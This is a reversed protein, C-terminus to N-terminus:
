SQASRFSAGRFDAQRIKENSWYIKDLNERRFDDSDRPVSKIGKLRELGDNLNIISDLQNQELFNILEPINTTDSEVVQKDDGRHGTSHCSLLIFSSIFFTIIINKKM